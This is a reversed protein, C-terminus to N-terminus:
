MVPSVACFGAWFEPKNFPQHEPKYQKSLLDIIAQKQESKMATKDKLWDIIQAQTAKRLWQQATNLALTINHPSNAINEYLKIMLIATHFDSVAWLSSVINVAGAKIFGSSLGIYEDSNNRYDIVGTECASLCVLYCQPLNLELIEALTLCKSLDIATEEDVRVYRSSSTKVLSSDVESDALQLASNLPSQLDFSGHCSFHLWQSNILNNFTATETLNTKSAQHHKLIQHPHFDAAITEVEINTFPLNNSPDQIAFLNSLRTREGQLLSNSLPKKALKLLQCSPAYSVGGPYKDFLYESNPSL